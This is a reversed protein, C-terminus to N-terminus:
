HLIILLNKIIQPRLSKRFRSM